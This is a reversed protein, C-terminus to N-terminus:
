IADHAFASLFAQCGPLSSPHSCCLFETARCSPLCELLILKRSLSVASFNIKTDLWPEPFIFAKVHLSEPLSTSLKGLTAKCHFNKAFEPCYFPFQTPKEDANHSNFLHSFILRNLPKPTISLLWFDVQHIPNWTSDPHFHHCLGQPSKM